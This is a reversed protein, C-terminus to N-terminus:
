GASVYIYVYLICVKSMSCWGVASLSTPPPCSGPVFIVCSLVKAVANGDSKLPLHIQKNKVFKYTGRGSTGGKGSRPIEHDQVAEGTYCAGAVAAGYKYTGRGSTGCKGSRPIEHDHVAEGTYGMSGPELVDVYCYTWDVEAVATANVGIVPTSCM